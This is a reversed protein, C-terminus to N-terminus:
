CRFPRKRSRARRPEGFLTLREAIAPSGTVFAFRLVRSTLLGRFIPCYFLQVVLILGHNTEPTGVILVLEGALVHAVRAVPECGLETAIRSFVAAVDRYDPPAPGTGGCSDAAQRIIIVRCYLCM